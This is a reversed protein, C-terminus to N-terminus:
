GETIDLFKSKDYLGTDMFFWKYLKHNDICGWKDFVALNVSKDDKMKENSFEDESNSDPWGTTIAKVYDSDKDYYELAKDYATGVLDMNESNSYFWHDAYGWNMQDWFASYLFKMDLNKDFNINTAYYKQPHEKGRTGLDFRAIIVCDYKFNNEKEHKAKLEISRKRSYLFSLTQFVSNSRYMTEERDFSDDFWSEDIKERSEEFQRQPEYLADVPKYM